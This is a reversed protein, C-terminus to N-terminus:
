KRVSAKPPKGGGQHACLGFKLVATKIKSMPSKFLRGLIEKALLALGIFTRPNYAVVGWRERRDSMWIRKYEDDGILFDVENVQDQEVVYQMLYSTLVTGPSYASFEEHYAVKYISAKGEGVIWLQAAIPKGQLRAIGLRLMGIDALRRILSPVFDAYPEHTKWSAEYVEQYSDIDREINALNTM